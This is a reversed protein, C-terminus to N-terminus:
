FDTQKFLKVIALAKVQYRSFSKDDALNTLDCKQNEGHCKSNHM